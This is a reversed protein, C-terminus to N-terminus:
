YRVDFREEGSLLPLEVMKLEYVRALVPGESIETKFIELLHAPGQVEIAVSGDATNRVWGTLSHKRACDSTFFRFGVGQVRGHVIISLRKSEM